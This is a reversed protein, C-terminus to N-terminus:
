ELILKNIMITVHDLLFTNDKYMCFYDKDIDVTYSETINELYSSKIENFYNVANEYTIFARLHLSDDTDDITVVYIYKNIGIM